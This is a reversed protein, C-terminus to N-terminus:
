PMKMLCRILGRVNIGFATGQIAINAMILFLEGNEIKRAGRIDATLSFVVPSGVGNQAVGQTSRHVWGRAPKDNSINPDPLATVGVGFAEQSTIGIGFDLQNHGWAGAVTNSAFDLRVLTRILTVGRTDAPTLTGLLSNFATSNSPVLESVITDQWDTMRAM